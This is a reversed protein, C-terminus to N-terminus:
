PQYAQYLHAEAAENGSIAMVTNRFSFIDVLGKDDVRTEEHPPHLGFKHISDMIRNQLRLM